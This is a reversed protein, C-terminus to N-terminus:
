EMIGLDKKLSQGAAERASEKQAAEEPHKKEYAKNMFKEVYEPIMDLIKNFSNQEKTNVVKVTNNKIIIIASPSIKGGLGGNTNKKKEGALSGVGMGFSVDVLPILTTDGIIIPDSVITKSSVFANMGSMLSEIANQFNTDSM